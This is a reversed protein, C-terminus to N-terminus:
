QADLYNRLFSCDSFKFSVAAMINACIYTKLLFTSNRKVSFGLKPLFAVFSLDM